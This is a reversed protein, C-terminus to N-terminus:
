KKEQEEEEEEEQQEYRHEDKVERAEKVEEIKYQEAPEMPTREEEIITKSVYKKTSEPNVVSKLLSSESTIHPFDKKQKSIISKYRNKVMHETRSGGMKRSVQSWKKGINLFLKALELDEDETWEGSCLSCSVTEQQSGFSEAM